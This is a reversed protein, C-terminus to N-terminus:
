KDETGLAYEIAQEMTMARGENCAKVFTEEGLAAQVAIIDRDYEVQLPVELLSGFVACVCEVTGCLRAARQIQGQVTALAAFGALSYGIGRPDGVQQFLRMGEVQRAYAVRYDGQLRAIRALHFYSFAVGPKNGGIQKLLSICEEFFSRALAHDGQFSHGIGLFHLAFAILAKDNEKRAIILGEAFLSGALALNGEGIAALGL